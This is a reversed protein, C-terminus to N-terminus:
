INKRYIENLITSEKKRIFLDEKLNLSKKAKKNVRVVAFYVARDKTIDDGADELVDLDSYYKSTDSFVGKCLFFELKLYPIELKKTGRRLVSNVEDFSFKEEAIKKEAKSLKKSQLYSPLLHWALYAILFLLVAGMIFSFFGTIDPDVDIKTASFLDFSM